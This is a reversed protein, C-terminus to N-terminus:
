RLLRSASTPARPNSPMGASGALRAHTRSPICILTSNSGHLFAVTGAQLLQGCCGMGMGFGLAQPLAQVSYGQVHMHAHMRGAVQVSSGATKDNTFSQPM